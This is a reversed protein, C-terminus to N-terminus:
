KKLLEQLFHIAESRTRIELKHYIGSIYNKVTGEGLYLRQAIQKNSMNDMFLYAIDIERKTFELGNKELKRALLQKNDMTLERIKSTLIRAAKGSIVSDGLHVARIAQLLTEAHLETLLFGDAGVNIGSIVMEEDAESSLMIVKIRPHNQKIQVTAQIAEMQLRCLDVIAIDPEKEGVLRVAEDGNQACGVIHLDEVPRIIAEIGDQMLPQDEVLVIDIM